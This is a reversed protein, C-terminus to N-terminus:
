VFPILKFFTSYFLSQGLAENTLFEFDGGTIVVLAWAACVILFAYLLGILLGIGLGLLQNAAGVLPLKNVNKLANAIFGIVIRCVIFVVFFILISIVPMVLPQVVETVIREAVDPSALNFSLSSGTEGLFTDIINQPLFGSVKNLIEGVSLTGQMDELVNVTRNVLNEAFLKEFLLPSIEKACWWAGGISILTGCFDLLGAIFGTRFYRLVMWVLIILIAIDLIRAPTFFNSM